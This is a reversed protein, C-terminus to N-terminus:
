SSIDKFWGIAPSLGHNNMALGFVTAPGIEAPEIAAVAEREPLIVIGTV